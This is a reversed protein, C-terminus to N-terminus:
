KLRPNVKGNKDRWVSARTGGGVKGNFGGKPVVALKQPPNKDRVVMPRPKSIAQMIKTIAGGVQKGRQTGGGRGQAQGGGRGQGQGGRQPGGGRGQGGGRINHPGKRVPKNNM